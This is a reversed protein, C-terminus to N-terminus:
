TVVGPSNKLGFAPLLPPWIAQAAHLREKGPCIRRRARDVVLIEGHKDTEAQGRYHGGHDKGSAATTAAAAAGRIRPSLGRGHLHHAVAQVVAAREAELEGHLARGRIQDPCFPHGGGHSRRGQARPVRGCATSRRQVRGRRCTGAMTYPAGGDVGATRRVVECGQRDHLLELIQPRLAQVFRLLQQQHITSAIVQRIQCFIVGLGQKEVAARREIRQRALQDRCVFFDPQSPILDAM